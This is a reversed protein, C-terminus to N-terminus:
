SVPKIGANTDTMDTEETYSGQEEAVYQHICRVYEM